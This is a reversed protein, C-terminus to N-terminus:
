TRFHIMDELFIRHCREVREPECNAHCSTTSAAVVLDELDATKLMPCDKKLLPRSRTNHGSKHDNQQLFHDDHAGVHTMPEQAPVSSINKEKKTIKVSATYIAWVTPFLRDQKLILEANKQEFRHIRVTYRKQSFHGNKIWISPNEHHETNNQSM